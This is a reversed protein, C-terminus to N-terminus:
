QVYEVDSVKIETGVRQLDIRLRFGDLKQEPNGAKSLKVAVAVLAQASNDGASVLGAGTVTGQSTSQEHKIHDIFPQRRQAFEDYFKGTSVDLIRQVDAEVETHSITTMDHAGQRAARLFVDQRQEAEHGRWADFSIWGTLGAVVVLAVAGVAAALQVESGWRGPEKSTVQQRVEDAPAGEGAASEGEADQTM